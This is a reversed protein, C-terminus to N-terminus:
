SRSLSGVGRTGRLAPLLGCLLAVAVAAATMYLLIRADVAIEHVRPLGPALRQFVATAGFAVAVGLAAGTVALVAAETLVQAALTGRPAGLSARIALERERRSARALLLAAINTCAILLLMSVAGFLLWLSARSSGVVIDKLPEVRISLNADTEPYLEALQAQVNALDLAAQGLTVDPKLRGIVTYWSLTRPIVWPANTIPVWADIAAEPYRLQPPTVGVIDIMSNGVPIPNELVQPDAGRARWYRDSLMAAPPGGFRHEEAAFARGLAPTIGLVDFFRPGVNALRIQEPFEGTTITGDALYFGAIADFTTSLRNWDEVRIPAVGSEVADRSQRLMVLRDAQPYPMPRLLVTDIASFVAGNAGIGLALTLVATATFGPTRALTRFAYRVNRLLSAIM